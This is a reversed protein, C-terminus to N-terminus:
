KNLLAICRDIERMLRNVRAKAQKRDASNGALGESLELSSIRREAEALRNTLERNQAQLKDRQAQLEAAQMKLRDHQEILRTIKQEISDIISKKAM